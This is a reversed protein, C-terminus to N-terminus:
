HELALSLVYTCHSFVPVRVAELAVCASDRETGIVEELLCSLRIAFLVVVFEERRGTSTTAFRDFVQYSLSKESSSNVSKQHLFCHHLRHALIPVRIAEVTVLTMFSERRVVEHLLTSLRVAFLVKM